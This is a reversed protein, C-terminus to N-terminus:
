GRAEVISTAIAYIAANITKLDNWINEIEEKLVTNAAIEELKTLVAKPQPNREINEQLIIPLTTKFINRLKGALEIVEEQHFDKISKIKNNREEGRSEINIPKEIM